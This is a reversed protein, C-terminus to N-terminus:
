NNYGHPGDTYLNLLESNARVDCSTRAEFYGLMDVRKICGVAKTNRDQTPIASNLLDFIPVMNGRVAHSMMWGYALLFSDWDVKQLRTSKSSSSDQWIRWAEQLLHKEHRIKEVMPLGDFHALLSESAFMPHYSEYESLTPLSALYPAWLSEAGALHEAALFVALAASAYDAKSKVAAKVMTDDLSQALTEGLAETANSRRIMLKEPIQMVMTGSALSANSALGRIKAAGHQFFDIRM